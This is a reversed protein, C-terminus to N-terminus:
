DISVVYLGLVFGLNVGVMIWTIIELEAMIM